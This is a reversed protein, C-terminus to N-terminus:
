QTDRTGGAWRVEFQPVSHRGVQPENQQFYRSNWPGPIQEMLFRALFEAVHRHGEPSWRPAFRLYNAESAAGQTLPSSLDAHPIKIRGTYSALAQFPTRNPYYAQAAVGAKMRTGSGNTCRASVQWPKPSTMTILQFSEAQALRALDSIPRFSQTVSMDTEPHENRLWAYANAGLDESKASQEAIQQKWQRGAIILGWDVLRFQQRLTDLCNSKQPKTILSTHPCSLPLGDDGTRIQRRLQRDDSVDSWDFHMLVLDPRLALLKQKFLLYETLPCAGPIGANIIEIRLRTQRQLLNSLLNVFHEGEPVEPALITEDGLIVVRYTDAPKPIAAEDSRLGHSNTRIEVTRRQDRCKVESTAHPKMERDTLWSPVTLRTPDVLCLPNSNSCISRGQVVEVIRVGVEAGCVLLGLLIAASM